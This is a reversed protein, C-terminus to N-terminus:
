LGPAPTNLWALNFTHHLRSSILHILGNAGQCSAVYGAPESTTKSMMCFRGDMTEVMRGPGDDSVPRRIPWTAGDDFSVACYLGTIPREVGTADKIPMPENAFSAFFLPGERLRKLVVRQSSRVPPFPSASYSWTRGMDNSISQPMMGDINANRGFALLRGDALQAVGAHIGAITGGADHWTDGDNGSLWLATGYQGRGVADCTLVVTGDQARFASEIPMHRLGHEPVIYRPTTWTAGSDNSTRMVIAISGWTAAASVGIFHHISDGDRWLLSSGITRDAPGWFASAPEWEDTGYRRRSGALTTERGPEQVCTYWCALLDGNPCETIAPVHNHHAFLPGNARPSIRVFPQPRAYYPKNSPPAAELDAPQEQKVNDLCMPLPPPPLPETDPMAGLVPRFGILWSREEPLAAMRNASRLYFLETSHSGGRTVRFEGSARGLPDQQEGEEYPGYWDLCWEEVLGHMAWLGWPNPRKQMCRLTVIDERGSRRPDPYWSRHQNKRSYEHLTMGTSYPTTTGARCAYEWEAETPLRYPLGERDSLWDCFGVAEHWSIFVVAEDDDQSFGLKGRLQAHAADFQEYVANTVPHAAMYFPRTIHVTHVPQEDHDGLQRHPLGAIGEPLPTTDVGMTFTGPELRVLQQGLSNTHEKDSPFM